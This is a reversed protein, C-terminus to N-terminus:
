RTWNSGSPLHWLSPDRGLTTISVGPEPKLTISLQFETDNSGASYVPNGAEVLASILAQIASSSEPHPGYVHLGYTPQPISNIFPRVDLTWGAEKLAQNIREGYQRPEHEALLCVRLKQGRFQRLKAVMSQYQNIDLRRLALMRLTEAPSPEFEMGLIKELEKILRDVDPVFRDGVVFAQCRAFPQLVDPLETSRPMSAGGVLVPIMRIRRELATVIELRVFDEPNDLRRQGQPDTITLWQRGIVALLVDCSGVANQIVEVFDHSPPINDVDMFINDPGFRHSLHDYLRGADARSDERRYNLFIRAVIREGLCSADGYAKQTNAITHM